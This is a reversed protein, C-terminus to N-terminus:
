SQPILNQVKKAFEEYSFQQGNQSKLFKQGITIMKQAQKPTISNLYKHLDEINKFNRMDVFTEKPIRSTIQPDGIYIPITGAVFCDIIKETIHGPFSVNEFCIAFKYASITKIKDKCKQIKQKQLFTLRKKWSSPINHGKIWNSGFIDLLNQHTFYEVLELRKDILQNKVAISRIPSIKQLYKDKAWDFHETIYSPKPWPFNKEFYKNTAVLVMFKRKEWPIPKKIDHKFFSPFNCTHNKGSSKPIEKIIGSYLIRHPFIKAINKIKSYFNYAYLPSELGILLLPKAGLEILKQGNKADLSQIVLVDGPNILNKNIKALAIDGTLVEINKKKMARAFVPIWCEGPYEKAYKPNLIKNALFLPLDNCIAIKM